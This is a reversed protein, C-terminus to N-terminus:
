IFSLNAIFCKQPYMSRVIPMDSSFKRLVYVSSDMYIGEFYLEVKESEAPKKMDVHKRYWGIGSAGFGGGGGTPADELLPYDMAWDHPLTVERFDDELAGCGEYRGDGLFFLWNDNFLTTDRM